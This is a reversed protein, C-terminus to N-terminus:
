QTKKGGQSAARMQRRVVGIVWLLLGVAVRVIAYAITLLLLIIGGAIPVLGKLGSVHAHTQDREILELKCRAMVAALEGSSTSLPHPAGPAPWSPVPLEAVGYTHPRLEDFSHTVLMCRTNNRGLIEVTLQQRQWDINVLGYNLDTCLVDEGQSAATHRDRDSPKRFLWRMAPQSVAFPLPLSAGSSHTLGSSTVDVVPLVTVSTSTNTCIDTRFYEGYHVDGSLILTPVPLGSEAIMTLLRYRSRPFNRWGEGFMRNQAAFQISSGIILLNPRIRKGNEDWEMTGEHESHQPEAAYSYDLEDALWAWQEAGLMDDSTTSQWYRLDLLLLKVRQGRPGFTYSTYIGRRTRRVDSPPEDLFDLFLQQVEDKGPTDINGDNEGYDHDDWMALVPMADRLRVYEPIRKQAAFTTAIAQPEAAWRIFQMGPAHHDSYVTDGLFFFVQPQAAIMASWLPQPKDQRNCSGFSFRTLPAPYHHSLTPHSSYASHQSHPRSASAVGDVTALHSLVSLALCTCVLRLLM